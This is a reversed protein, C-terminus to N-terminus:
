EAEAVVAAVVVVVAAGGVAVVVAAVVAAAVLALSPGSEMVGSERRERAFTKTFESSNECCCAREM